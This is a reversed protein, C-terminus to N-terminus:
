QPHGGPPREGEGTAGQSSGPIANQARKEEWRKEWEDPPTRESLDWGTLRRLAKEIHEREIDYSGMGGSRDSRYAEILIPVDVEPTGIEEIRKATLWLIYGSGRQM